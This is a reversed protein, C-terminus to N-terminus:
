LTMKLSRNKMITSKNENIKNCDEREFKSKQLFIAVNRPIQNIISHKAENNFKFYRFFVTM